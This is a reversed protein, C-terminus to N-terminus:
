AFRVYCVFCDYCDHARYTESCSTSVLEDGQNVDVGRDLLRRVTDVDGTAAARHYTIIDGIRLAGESASRDLGTELQASIM